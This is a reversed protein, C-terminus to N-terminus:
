GGYLFLKGFFVLVSFAFFGVILGAILADLNVLLDRRRTKIGISKLPDM